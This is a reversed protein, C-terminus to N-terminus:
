NGNLEGIRGTLAAAILAARFEALCEVSAAIQGIAADTEERNRALTATLSHQEEIPPMLVPVDSLVDTRLAKTGHGAEAVLTFLFSEISSLYM